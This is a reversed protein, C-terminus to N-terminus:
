IALSEMDAVIKGVIASGFDILYPMGERGVLINEKRKMDSHAVGARHTALILVLLASFFKDRDVLENDSLRLPQGEIFELLLGIM